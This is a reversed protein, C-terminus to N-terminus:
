KILNERIILYAERSVPVNPIIGTQLQQQEPLNLQMPGKGFIRDWLKEITEINGLKEDEILRKIVTKIVVPVKKNTMLAQLQSNNCTLLCALLNATDQKTLQVSLNINLSTLLKTIEPRSAGQLQLASRITSSYSGKGSDHREALETAKLPEVTQAELAEIAEVRKQQEVIRKAQLETQGDPIEEIGLEEALSQRKEQKAQLNKLKQKELYKIRALEKADQKSKIRAAEQEVLKSTDPNSMGPVIPRDPLIDALKQTIKDTKM